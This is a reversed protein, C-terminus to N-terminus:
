EALFAVVETILRERGHEARDLHVFHTAEPLTLARISRAHVADHVFTQVDEPRSWFDRESRVVLVSGTISSADFLRRSSAQYFSDEIAGTRHGRFM